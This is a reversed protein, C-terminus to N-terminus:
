ERQSRILLARGEGVKIRAQPATQENSVSLTDGRTLTANQLPYKVGEMTVGTLQRDLPALSLYHYKPGGSLIVEEGDLLRTESEQDVIIGHGGRDKLWELLLLNFVTHDLRRGGVCGCLVLETCGDALALDMAAQLDTLDKEVPLVTCPVGTVPHGGSDWDGVVLHPTLGAALAGSLGGDACYVKVNQDLYDGLFSWDACPVAGFIVGRANSATEM